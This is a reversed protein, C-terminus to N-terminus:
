RVGKLKSCLEDSNGKPELTSLNQAEPRTYQIPKGDFLLISVNIIGFGNASFGAVQQLRKALKIFVPDIDEFVVITQHKGTDNM